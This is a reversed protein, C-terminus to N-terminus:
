WPSGGKLLPALLTRSLIRLGLAASAMQSRTQPLTNARHLIGSLIHACHRRTTPPLVPEQTEEASRSTSQEREKEHACEKQAVPEEPNQVKARSRRNRCVLGM